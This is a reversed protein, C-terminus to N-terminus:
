PYSGVNYLMERENQPNGLSERNSYISLIPYGLKPTIVARPLSPTLDFANLNLIGGILVFRGEDLIYMDLIKTICSFKFIFKVSVINMCCHDADINM